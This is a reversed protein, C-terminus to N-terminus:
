LLVEFSVRRLGASFTCYFCDFTFRARRLRCLTVLSVVNSSLASASSTSSNPRSFMGPHFATATTSIYRSLAELLSASSWVPADPGIDTVGQLHRTRAPRKAPCRPIAHEFTEPAEERSPCTTHADDSWSPHARLYSKGSRMQHLRGATFKNLGMFPHPKLSPRYPYRAPDPAAEDWEKMLLNNCQLKLQPYTRGPPPAPYIECVLHQSTVPLPEFGGPGLVFLMSHPLTDLPLQARNKSLPRPQLWPLPLRSGANKASLSRHDPSHRHLSPTRVSLPLRASAPNIEPPSCLIRLSALRKKYRM